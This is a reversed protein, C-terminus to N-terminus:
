DESPKPAIRLSRQRNAWASTRWPSHPEEKPDNGDKTPADPGFSSSGRDRLTSVTYSTRWPGRSKSGPEESKEKQESNIGSLGAASAFSRPFSKASRQQKMTGSRISPQPQNPQQQQQQNIDQKPQEQQKVVQLQKPQEQQKVVQLQKPQEQQKVHPEQLQLQPQQSEQKPMQQQQKVVQLQKPQEQQKVHPEQPQLQPQQSEQKPMQQQQKVVQLQKPQEQQRVQPEQPQQSEQKPMQQQQQQQARLPPQDVSPEPEPVSSFERPFPHLARQQKAAASASWCVDPADFAISNRSGTSASTEAETTAAPAFARPFPSLRRQQKTWAAGPWLREPSEFQVAAAVEAKEEVVKSEELDPQQQQQQQQQKLPLAEQPEDMQLAFARPFPSLSRQQKTWAAGPWLRESSKFQVSADMSEEEEEEEEEEMQQDLSQAEEVEDIEPAFARPFAKSARLQRSRASAAWLQEAGEAFGSAGEPDERSDAQDDGRDVSGEGASIGDVREGVASEVLDASFARPFSSQQRASASGPWLEESSSFAAAPADAVAAEAIDGPAEEEEEEKAAAAAASEPAYANADFRRPFPESRRQKTAFASAPWLAASEAFVAQNTREEAERGLSGNDAAAETAQSEYMVEDASASYECLVCSNTTATDGWAFSLAM